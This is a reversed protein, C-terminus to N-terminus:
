LPSRDVWTEAHTRLPPQRVLEGVFGLLRSAASAPNDGLELAEDCGGLMRWTAIDDVPGALGAAIRPFDRQAARLASPAAAAVVARGSRVDDCISAPLAFNRGGFGWVLGFVGNRRLEEFQAPTVTQHVEGLLMPPGSVVRRPFVVREGNPSRRAAEVVVQATLRDAGIVLVLVGSANEDM